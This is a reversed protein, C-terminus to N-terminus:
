RLNRMYSTLKQISRSVSDKSNNWPEDKNNYDFKKTFWNIEENIRQMNSLQIDMIASAITNQKQIPLHKKIGNLILQLHYLCFGKSNGLKIKFENDEFYMYFMVDLYRDMTYKIKNCFSCETNLKKLYEELKCIGNTNSSKDTNFSKFFQKKPEALLNSAKCQKKLNTNQLNLYTDIMLALGLTNQQRNYLLEFHQRCFGLKNTELRHEPEMLSPGLFFEITKEELNKEMVCLACECDAAFADNVPITYIEEKM